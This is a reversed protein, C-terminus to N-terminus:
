TSQNWQCGSFHTAKIVMKNLFIILVKKYKLTM